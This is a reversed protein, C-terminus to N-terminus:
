QGSLHGTAILPSTSIWYTRLKQSDRPVMQSGVRARCCKSMNEHLYHISDSMRFTKMRWKQTAINDIVIYQFGATGNKHCPQAGTITGGKQMATINIDIHQFGATGHKHCPQAGTITGGGPQTPMYPCGGKMCGAGCMGGGCSTPSSVKSWAGWNMVGKGSSEPTYQHWEVAYTCQWALKCLHPLRKCM